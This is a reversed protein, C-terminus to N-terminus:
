VPGRKTGARRLSRLMGQLLFCLYLLDLGLMTAWPHRALAIGFGIGILMLWSRRVLIVGLKPTPFNSVMMLGVIVMWGMVVLDPVPRASGTALSLYLPMMVLAAGGPSPVGRFHHKEAPGAPARSGVNFRALRLLCCIAYCLAAVWGLRKFDPFAWLNMILAPAVGFNVFDALSDLEAGLESNAGIRRAVRGDLGDVIAASLVLLASVEFLGYTSMLIATIGAVLAAITMLNPVQLLAKRSWFRTREGAM